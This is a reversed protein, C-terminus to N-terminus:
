PAALMADPTGAGPLLRAMFRPGALLARARASPEAPGILARPRYAGASEPFEEVLRYAFSAPDFRLVVLRQWAHLGDGSGGACSMGAAGPRCASGWGPLDVVTSAGMSPDNWLLSAWASALYPVRTAQFGGPDPTLSLVLKAERDLAPVARLISILEARQRRWTALYTDQRELGGAVGLGVFLAPLALALRPARAFVAIERAALAVLISAFLRTVLHTRCRMEALQVGSFAIHTAVLM